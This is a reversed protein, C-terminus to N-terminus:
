FFITDGTLPSECKIMHKCIHKFAIHVPKIIVMVNNPNCFWMLLHAFLINPLTAYDSSHINSVEASIDFKYIIIYAEWQPLRM